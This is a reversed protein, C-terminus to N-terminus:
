TKLQSMWAGFRAFSNMLFKNMTPVVKLEVSLKALKQILRKKTASNTQRKALIAIIGDAKILELARELRVVRIGFLMHTRLKPNDDIVLRVDYYPNYQLARVVQTGSAGAGYVAIQRRGKSCVHCVILSAHLSQRFNIHFDIRCM